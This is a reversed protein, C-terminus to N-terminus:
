KDALDPSDVLRLFQERQALPVAADDGVVARDVCALLLASKSGQAFVTQASVGATEAIDKMTTAAYGKDLFCRAAADLVAARTRQAQEARLPSNYVRKGAM